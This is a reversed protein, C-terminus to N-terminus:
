GLRYYMELCARANHYPCKWMNIKDTGTVKHEATVGTFWEGKEHDILYKKIFEWSNESKELFHVKGTNQYANYFGVMAEAMVWWDRNSNSHGTEPDFEYIMGNDAQLGECASQALEICKAKAIKLLEEDGLIEVSEQILWSSEIDHGYSKAKSLPEWNETFFLTQRTNEKGIIKDMVIEICHKLHFRVPESKDVRYLNAFCEMLHLHTNMSKRANGKALIYDNIEAWNQAYAEIYGGNKADYSHKIIAQFVDQALLLAPKLGTARYYESLGYVAFSHGYMLKRTEVPQGNAKVSWYVGGNTKDWFYKKIYDFARIMLKLYEPNKDEIYARSFTWLIRGNLVIGKNENLKPKNEADVAGYFGELKPSYSYKMWYNLIYQYEAKVESKFNPISIAM